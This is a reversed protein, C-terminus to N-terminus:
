ENSVSRWFLIKSEIFVISYHFILGLIGIVIMAAMIKTPALLLRNYDIFYGLGSQSAIMEAAIIVMWSFGVATKIGTLLYPTTFPFVVQWFKQWNSLNLSKAVKEFITPLSHVGFYVNTFVPFFSAIFIIFFSSSDGIGFWLIAIPIWAIPPIPRLIQVIPNFLSSLFSNIGLVYGCVAGGIIGIILGVLVRYLSSYIHGLIEGSSFLSILEFFVGVPSPFLFTNLLGAIFQWVFFFILFSACLLLVKRALFVGNM